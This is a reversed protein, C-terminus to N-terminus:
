ALRQCDRREGGRGGDAPLCHAGELSGTPGVHCTWIVAAGREALAPLLSLTQPDHLIVPDGPGVTEVLEKRDNRVSKEFTARDQQSLEIGAGPDGHLLHHVRKTVEFFEDSEELVLWRTSVHGVLYSLISSLMEAVGGGQATSNVIWLTRGSMRRRARDLVDTFEQTRSPGILSEFRQVPMAPVPVERM